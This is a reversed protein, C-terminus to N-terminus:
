PDGARLRLHCVVVERRQLRAESDNVKSVSLTKDHRVDGAEDFARAASGAQSMIEQAMDLAAFHQDM